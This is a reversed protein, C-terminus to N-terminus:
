HQLLLLELHYQGMMKGGNDYDVQYKIDGNSSKYVHLVRGIGHKNHKVRSGVAIEKYSDIIARAETLCYDPDGFFGWCSDLVDKHEHGLSCIVIGKIEYGYVEGKLYQDYMKVEDELIKTAREKIAKNVSKVGCEKRLRDATMYIVGVTCSDFQDTFPYERKCSITIGSHDYLYLPLAICAKLSKTLANVSEVDNPHIDHKDGLRYRPHFCLMTGFNDFETRPNLPDPDYSIDIQYGKYTEQKYIHM